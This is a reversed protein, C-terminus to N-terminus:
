SLLSSSEKLLPQDIFRFPKSIKNTSSHEIIELVHHRLYLHLDLAVQDNRSRGTHLKGAVDGVESYLHREINMHIDEDQISFSLEGHQCKTLLRELGALLQVKEDETIIQCNALM